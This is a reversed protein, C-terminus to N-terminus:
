RQKLLSLFEGISVNGPGAKATKSLLIAFDNRDVLEVANAKALDKAQNTYINNSVVIAHSAKYFGKAACIEQVAWNGVPTAQRKAQVVYKCDAGEMILDAGQDRSRRTVTVNKYGLRRYVEACVKEFEHGEMQDIAQMEIGDLWRRQLLWLKLKFSTFFIIGIICAGIVALGLPNRTEIVTSVSVFVIVSIFFLISFQNFRSILSSILTKGGGRKSSLKLTPVLGFIQPQKRRRAM